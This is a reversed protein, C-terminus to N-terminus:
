RSKEETKYFNIIGFNSELMVMSCNGGSVFNSRGALEISKKKQNIKLNMKLFCKAMQDQEPKIIKTEQLLISDKSIRKYLVEYVHVVDIDYHSSYVTYSSDENLIFKLNFFFIEGSNCSRFSGKWEGELSQSFCKLSILFAVLFIFTSKM